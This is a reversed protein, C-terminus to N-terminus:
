DSSSGEPSICLVMSSPTSTLRLIPARVAAVQHIIAQSSFLATDKLRKRFVRDGQRGYPCTANHSIGAERLVIHRLKM